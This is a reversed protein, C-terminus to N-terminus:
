EWPTFQQLGYQVAVLKSESGSFTVAEQAIGICMAMKDAKMGQGDTSSTCIGDGVAINGKEGNCLIHGDGLVYVQHLNDNDHYKGAYAGLINKAYASSSKQVKYLIGRETDAGNKQKYFIETHEVLTGYPYGDDNDDSPLEVDHNATFAGYTVTSGTFTISGILTGDGDKIMVAYTTGSADDTGCQIIIGGNTADNGDNQFTALMGGAVTAYSSIAGCHVKARSGASASSMYVATVNGDGLTVSNDAQGTASYGIVTQNTSGVASTDANYGVCTNNTGTTLSDMCVTGVAVNNDGETLAGMSGYGVATNSGAGNMVADMSTAGVAVNYNSVATVWDGSGANHGIFTNDVSADAATDLAGGFANYGLATNRAGEVVDNM